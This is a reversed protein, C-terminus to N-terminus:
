SELVGSLPYADWSGAKNPLACFEGSIGWMWVMGEPRAGTPWSNYQLVLGLNAGVGVMQVKSLEIYFVPSPAAALDEKTGGMRTRFRTEPLSIPKPFLFAVEAAPFRRLIDRVETSNFWGDHHKAVRDALVDHVLHRELKTLARVGSVDLPRPERRCIAPLGGESAVGNADRVKAKASSPSPLCLLAATVVLITARV